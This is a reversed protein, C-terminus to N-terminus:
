ERSETYITNLAGAVASAVTTRVEFRAGMYTTNGPLNTNLSGNFATVGNVIFLVDITAANPPCYMYLECIDNAAVAVGTNIKTTAAGRSFIQYNTDASDKCAGVSNNLVSPEGSLAGTSATLGSIIQMAAQFTVVAWKSYFFFGGVNAANGRVHVSSGMRVGSQNGAAAGTTYVARRLRTLANTTALAPHSQTATVNWAVGYTIAATTGTGTLWKYIVRDIPLPEIFYTEGYENKIGILEKGARKQMFLLADNAAVVGPAANANLTIQNTSTGTLLDGKQVVVNTAGRRVLIEDSALPLATAPYDIHKPDILGTM